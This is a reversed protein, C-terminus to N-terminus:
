PQPLLVQARYFRQGSGSPDISPDSFGAQTSDASGDGTDQPLDIQFLAQWAAGFSVLDLFEIQYSVGPTGTLIMQQEADISLNPPDVVLLVAQISNTSGARNTTVVSYTGGQDATLNTLVLTPGTAGTVAQGDFQWQYSVSPSGAANVSLTVDSGPTAALSAPQATIRPPELNGYVALETGSGVYVKGNAIVPLAFKQAIGSQDRAGAQSSNYLEQALNTANYAHLIGSAQQYFTDTQLLWVIADNTGNASICPTGSPYGWITNPNISAPTTSLLGNTIAFAELPGGAGQYYVWGNYYGPNSWTGKIAFPLFQVIQSNSFANYKGMHDRDVLYISGEKGSGILLHPHDSSGVADPLLMPGGAGLDGDEANLGSQNDPTFYDAVALNTGAPALRVFSDGLDPGFTDFTGNGIMFYLSGQQDAALSAGSMWIGGQSGNPTDNYIRNCQLTRADFGLVWGHYPGLDGASAFAAYVYGNLLLLGPRQFDYAPDFVVQGEGNSNDGSGPTTVAILTPGGFKEAGTSVDLAHLRQPYTKVGNVIERTHVVVYLTGTAPDIVPTGTIGLESPESIGLDSTPVSTVGLAANIFSDHWLWTGNDRRSDDADFAYVSDHETAVFVLNRTGHGPVPVGSLCVPQAYVFGDVPYGFWKGFSNSNVNALTLKTEQLNQGTHAADNHWMLVDVGALAPPTPVLVMLAVRLLALLVSHPAGHSRILKRPLSFCPIEMRKRKHAPSARDLSANPCSHGITRVGQKRPEDRRTGCGVWDLLM